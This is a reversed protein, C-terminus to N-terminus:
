LSDKSVNVCLRDMVKFMVSQIQVVHVQNVHLHHLNPVVLWHIAKFVMAVDVNDKLAYLVKVVALIVIVSLLNQVVLIDMVLSDRHVIAFRNEVQIVNQVMDVHTPNVHTLFRAVTLQIPIKLGVLLVFADITDM